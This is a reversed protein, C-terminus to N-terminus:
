RSILSPPRNDIELRATSAPRDPESQPRKHQLYWAFLIAAHIQYGTANDRTCLLPSDVPWQTLHCPSRGQTPSVRIGAKYKNGQPGWVSELHSSTREGQETNANLVAMGCDLDFSTRTVTRPQLATGAVWLWCRLDRPYSGAVQGTAVAWPSHSM